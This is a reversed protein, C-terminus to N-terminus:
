LVLRVRYQDLWLNLQLALEVAARALRDKALRVPQNVLETSAQLDILARVPAQPDALIAKFEEQLRQAYDPHNSVPTASQRRHLVQEPLLDAVAARLISKEIGNHAHMAAPINYAYQILKHSNIPSRLQLGAAAFVSSDIPGRTLVLYSVRRMQRQWHDEDPLYEVEAAATAYADRYYTPFDLAALVDQNLLGTGFGNVAGFRQAMALWPFTGSEVLGKDTSWRAGQFLQDGAGGTFAVKSGLAAVRQIFLYQSADMDYIRTPVDKARLIGQRVVPDLIDTAELQVVTQDSGIYEAVARAYPEDKTDRMVDPQFDGQEVFDVTFTRLRDAHRRRLEAAALAAVSSSDIGGSLTAILRSPDSPVAHQISEELMGRVAAITTPLDDTHPSTQLQWYRQRHVGTRGYRVIEASGVSSLGSYLAGTPLAHSIAERLGAADVV